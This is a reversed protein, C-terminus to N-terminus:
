QINRTRMDTNKLALGKYERAKGSATPLLYGQRRNKLDRPAPCARQRDIPRLPKICQRPLVHINAPPLIPRKISSIGHSTPVEIESSDPPNLIRKSAQSITSYYLSIQEPAKYLLTQLPALSSSTVMRSQVILNFKQQFLKPLM